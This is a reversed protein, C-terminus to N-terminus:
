PVTPRLLSLSIHLYKCILAAKRGIFFDFQRNDYGIVSIDRNVELGHEYIADYAGAAMIDNMCFVATINEKLLEEM